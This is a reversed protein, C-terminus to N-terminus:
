LNQIKRAVDLATSMDTCGGLSLPAGNEHVVIRHRAAALASPDAREFMWSDGEIRILAEIPTAPGMAKGSEQTRAILPALDRVPWRKA